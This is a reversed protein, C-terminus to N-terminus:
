VLKIDSVLSLHDSPFEVSPLRDEGIQNGTPMNLTSITELEPSHFIYDLIHKQEGSDRIKWTTYELNDDENDETELTYGPMKYSSVLPTTINETLTSYFPESPEGNFDGSLIVPRDGRITALWKLIDKGQENRFSKQLDGFRAKLHTTAVCVEAGTHKHRLILSLIVQNSKAGWVKLVRIAFRIREFKSKKFFLACGDPGNNSELYICPSDPKPLIRGSYGISGLAKLLLKSHDVEQLCLIDPDYRIIEELVRWRRTNWDLATSPVRVFRDNKSGLTQSLVNWQFVRVLNPSREESSEDSGRSFKRNLPGTLLHKLETECRELLEGRAVRPFELDDDQDVPVFVDALLASSDMKKSTKDNIVRLLAEERLKFMLNQAEATSTPLPPSPDVQGLGSVSSRGKWSRFKWLHKASM